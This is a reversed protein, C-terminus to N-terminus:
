ADPEGLEHLLSRLVDRLQQQSAAPLRRIAAPPEVLQQVLRERVARGAATLVLVNVRRDTSDVQRSLWGRQELSDVVGVLSSPACHLRQSMERQSLPRDPPLQVLLQAQPKSLGLQTVVQGFRRDLMPVLAALLAPIEEAASSVQLASLWHPEAVIRPLM